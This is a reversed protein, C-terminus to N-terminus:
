KKRRLALLSLGGLGALAMTAPEPVPAVGNLLFGTTIASSGFLTAAPSPPAGSGGSVVSGEGTVGYYGAALWQGSTLQAAIQAWTTGLSASWGVLEVNEATGAAWGDVSVGTTAGNGTIGGAALTYNNAVLQVGNTSAVSWGGTLPNASTPASADVLLAFYYANATTSLKGTTTGNQATGNTSFLFAATFNFLKVTGQAYAGTMGALAVALTLVLKKM